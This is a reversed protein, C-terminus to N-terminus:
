TGRRKKENRRNKSKLNPTRTGARSEMGNDEACAPGPRRRGLWWRWSRWTSGWTCGPWVLSIIEGDLGQDAGPDEGQRVHGFCRWGSARDEEVLEKGRLPADVGRQAGGSPGHEM